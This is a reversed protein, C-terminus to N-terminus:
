NVRIFRFYLYYKDKKHEENVLNLMWELAKDDATQSDHQVMKDYSAVLEEDDSNLIRVAKIETLNRAGLLTLATYADPRNFLWEISNKIRKQM